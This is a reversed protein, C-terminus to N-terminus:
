IYVYMICIYLFKIGQIDCSIINIKNEEKQKM